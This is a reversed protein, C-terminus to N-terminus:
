EYMECYILKRKFNASNLQYKQYVIKIVFILQMNGWKLNLPPALQKLNLIPTFIASKQQFIFENFNEIL